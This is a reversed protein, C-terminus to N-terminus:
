APQAACIVARKPMLSASLPSNCGLESRDAPPVGRITPVWTINLTHRGAADGTGPDKQGAQGKHLEADFLMVEKDALSRNAM